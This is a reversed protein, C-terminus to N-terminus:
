SLSEACADLGNAKALKAVEAFPANKSLANVAPVGAIAPKLLMTVSWTSPTRTGGPPVRLAQGLQLAHVV